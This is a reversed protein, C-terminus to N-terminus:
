LISDSINDLLNYLPWLDPSFLQSKFQLFLPPFFPLGALLVPIASVFAPLCPLFTHQFFHLYFPQAGHPSLMAPLCLHPQLPLCVGCWLPERHRPIKGVVALVSWDRGSFDLHVALFFHDLSNWGSGKGILFHLAVASYNHCCHCFRTPFSGVDM